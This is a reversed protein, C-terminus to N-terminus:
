FDKDLDIEHNHHDLDDNTKLKTGSDDDNYSLQPGESYLKVREHYLDIYKQRDFNDDPKEQEQNKPQGELM